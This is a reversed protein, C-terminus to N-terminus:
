WKIKLKGWQFLLLFSKKVLGNNLIINAFYIWSDGDQVRLFPPSQLVSKQCYCLFGSSLLKCKETPLLILLCQLVYSDYSPMSDNSDSFYEVM